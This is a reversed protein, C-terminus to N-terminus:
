SIQAIKSSWNLSKENVKHSHLGHQSDIFKTTQGLFPQAFPVSKRYISAVGYLVGTYVSTFHSL